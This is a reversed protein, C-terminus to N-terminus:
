SANEAIINWQFFDVEDIVNGSQVQKFQSIPTWQIIIQDIGIRCFWRISKSDVIHFALEEYTFNFLTRIIACRLVQEASMGNAGARLSLTKNRNLDQLIHECIISNKDIIGSIAELEKSQPHDLIHPMLPM